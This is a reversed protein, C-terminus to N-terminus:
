KLSEWFVEVPHLAKRGTGDMIQHRCSTGPAALTTEQKTKRIEPFLVLEGVKMSVDYHESEYGFSGAMGCCGSKIEDVKYEIPLELMFRTSATSALAKQHCHGHLRIQRAEGTFQEKRINGANVEAMIFDEFLFCHRSLELAKSKLAGFTLDIYEDRFTLIASPEIGVLPHERSVLPSLLQVNKEAIKKAKRLFGKSLFTRGSEIHNPIEVRYGLKNLAKIAAIGVEVDNYNTFEDAFLYVLKGNAPNQKNKKHWARLTSKYLLPISRKPAFGITKKMLGSTFSNKLFFNYLGPFISGLKNFSNIYAIMRTRLPIGNADYYHQLFEAKYKAIDVNSPCESKCGKCSLCLDMIDYIEQHDFPNTKESHTLFERLINARARTTTNEDRTAQYSPCMTGAFQESKRCDGSGNCQEAARVIGMSESFDFVTDIERTQQGPKYRLSANMRPTDTIKGPNFIGNPDWTAKIKRLLQYNHHGIMLPIFEGRLRGDGHEGSLSGRYKKVLKATELGVTYFLEVDNPDKLDLVPRLHLEGTAIHAYFVCELGLRKLMKRFDAMYAPLVAPNVATDEIVAVPKKDGPINSLLGLGAKRLAWVKKIDDGYIIPFHYGFGAKKMHAILGSAVADIADRSELALEVVLIAAPEGQIFFRNKRQTINDKTRELIFHDMLEVAVPKHKLAVLNAEFAEDLTHCHICILANEKPPLPVLNLTIETSFALTGESGALLTCFNFDPKGATFPATELLLDLAYGTNRREVEPDPYQARIEQQNEPNQLIEQISRYIQGELSNLTCKSLFGENSLRGFIAESGDSLLTKIELTHNRTSGYVLSHAGCANNGVMGGIMCRNSTSTEPGFFLGYPQLFNNLEDLVVGPQVRVWHEEVNLELIRTMYRSVDVIIGDGVVQGALSTGATRPILSIKMKRAFDILLRIDGSDDPRCVAAPLERYASADTAYLLRMADGTYLDGKLRARLENWKNVPIM